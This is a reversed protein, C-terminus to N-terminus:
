TVLLLVGVAALVAQVVRQFRRPEVRGHLREGLAIGAVLGPALFAALPWADGLTGAQAFSVLLASNLVLWLASMTARFERKDPIEAATLVVIVPGGSAFLGHCVGGTLPLLIRAGVRWGGELGAGDRGRAMAWLRALAAVVVFVGLLTKLGASPLWGYLLRGVVLGVGAFPLVRWALFGLRVKRANRAVIWASQLWGLVVLSAILPALPWLIGGVALAFVTAGFGTLTEVTHALAVVLVLPWAAVM